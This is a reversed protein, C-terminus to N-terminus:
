SQRRAAHLIRESLESVELCDPPVSSLRRHLRQALDTVQPIDLRLRRLREPDSFAHRPPEDLILRGQELVIVRDATTTEELLHTIAVITLGQGRLQELIGLVSTRGEGDLLATAEDLVLCSPRLALMGAIALLQKHGPSLLHTPKDRWRWLGVMSLAWKVRERVEEPALGLNEPGFAVDEEAVTGVIQDDPSQFVM